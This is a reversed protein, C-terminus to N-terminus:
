FKLIRKKMHAYTYCMLTDVYVCEYIYVINSYCVFHQLVFYIQDKKTNKAFTFRTM